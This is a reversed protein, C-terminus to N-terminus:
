DRSAIQGYSNAPISFVNMYNHNHKNTKSRSFDIFVPYVTNYIRILDENNPIETNIYDLTEDTNIYDLTRHPQALLQLFLNCINKRNLNRVFMTHIRGNM